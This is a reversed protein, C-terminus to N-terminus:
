TCYSTFCKTCASTLLEYVHWEKWLRDCVPGSSDVAPTNNSVASLSSHSFFQDCRMAICHLLTFFQKSISWHDEASVCADCEIQMIFALFPLMESPTFDPLPSSVSNLTGFM